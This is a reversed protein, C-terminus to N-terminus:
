LGGEGVEVRRAEKNRVYDILGWFPEVLTEGYLARILTEHGAPAEREISDLFELFAARTRNSYIRARMVFRGQVPNERILGAMQDDTFIADSYPAISSLAIVDNLTGSSLQRQGSQVKRVLGAILLASNWNYPARCGEESFLFEGVAEVGEKSVPDNPSAVRLLTRVITSLLPANIFSDLASPDGSSFYRQQTELYTVYSDILVKAGAKLELQFQEEFTVSSSRWHEAQAMLAAHARDRNARTHEPPDFFTSGGVRIRVREVWRELDGHLIRSLPLTDYRVEGGALWQKMGHVLEATQAEEPFGYSVDGSLHEFIAEIEPGLPHVRSEKEQIRSSPCVILNLKYLRDLKGFALRWYELDSGARIARDPDLAKAMNSVAMQDLYILRKQPPKVFQARGCRVCHFSPQHFSGTSVRIQTGGCKACPALASPPAQVTSESNM